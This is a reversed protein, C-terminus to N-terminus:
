RQPYKNLLEKTYMNGPFILYHNAAEKYNHKQYNATGLIAHCYYIAQINNTNQFFPIIKKRVKHHFEESGYSQQAIAKLIFFEYELAKSLKMEEASGILRLAQETEQKLLYVFSCFLLAIQKLFPSTQQRLNIKSYKLASEYDQSEVYSKGLAYHIFFANMGKAHELMNLLEVTVTNTEMPVQGTFSNIIMFLRSSLMHSPSLANQSLQLAKNVYDTAQQNKNMYYYSIAYYLHIDSDKKAQKPHAAVAKNLYTLANAFHQKLIFYYSIAKYYPYSIQPSFVETYKILHPLLKSAHETNYHLLAYQFQCLRYLEIHDDSDTIGVQKFHHYYRDAVDFQQNTMNKQWTFLQRSLKPRKRKIHRNVNLVQFIHLLLQKSPQQKGLEIKCITSISRNVKRALQQQSWNKKKRHFKILKGVEYM